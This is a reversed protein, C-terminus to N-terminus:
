KAPFVCYNVHYGTYAGERIDLQIFTAVIARGTESSVVLDRLKQSSDVSPLINYYVTYKKGQHTYEMTGVKGVAVEFKSQPSEPDHLEPVERLALETLPGKLATELERKLQEPNERRFLERVRFM